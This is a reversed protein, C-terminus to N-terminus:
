RSDRKEGRDKMNTQTDPQKPPTRIIVRPENSRKVPLNAPSQQRFVSADQLATCERYGSIEPSTEPFLATKQVM